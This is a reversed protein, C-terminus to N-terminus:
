TGGNALAYAAYGNKLKSTPHKYTCEAAKCAGFCIMDLCAGTPRLKIATYKIPPLTAAM